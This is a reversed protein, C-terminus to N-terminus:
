VSGEEKGSYLRCAELFRATAAPHSRLHLHLFSALLNSEAYGEPRNDPGRGGVLRFAYPIPSAPNWDIRSYHFEHGRFTEGRNALLNDKVATAKVYGLAQLKKTMTIKAPVLGIGPYAKGSFDTIQETLFMFGGCEALIPMGRTAASYIAEQLSKNASLQGLFMEPFGGGWYLGDVPPLTEDKLPSFFCLEAGLEQLYDLSDQYYFHFAQDLAIGIKVSSVSSSLSTTAERIDPSNLETAQHAIQILRNLDVHEQTLKALSSLAKELGRNEEAPMLGLHREPIKVEEQPPVAGLVQVGTENELLEPLRLQQFDGRANNLIVGELRLSPMYDRFGKLLPVCSKGMGRVDLVMVVPAQLMLAIQATSGELGGERSGDFLGMVGEIVSIDAHCANRLFIKQVVDSSSMWGDLNHSKVGAAQCHLGTDIYDPGVKFPQVELGKDRLARMIGLSLTTKGVGSKVGAMVVRPCGV